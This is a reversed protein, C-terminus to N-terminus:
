NMVTQTVDVTTVTLLIHCRVTVNWGGAEDALVGTQYDTCIVSLQHNFTSTKLKVFSSHRESHNSKGDHWTPTAVVTEM